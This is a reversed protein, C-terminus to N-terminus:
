TWDSDSGGGGGFDSGSEDEYSANDYSGDQGSSGPDQYGANDYSSNDSNSNSHDSLSASQDSKSDGFGLSNAIGSAGGHSNFANMLANGAILGGAVGAATVAATGLFGMGGSRAPAAQAQAPAYGQQYGQGGAPAGWPSPQQQPPAGYGAARQPQSFSPAPGTPRAASGGGFISSLFGGSQAPAQQPAAQRLRAVEAQLQEVQQSLNGLAQEQVFISQAMAYPAYPQERIRDAIFREAEPDRPQYAAERLRDFIGGIVNREEPTM